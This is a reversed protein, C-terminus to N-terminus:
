YEATLGDISIDTDFYKTLATIAYATDKIGATEYSSHMALQPLGIDVANVSVQTNSLNGLTSGGQADSRNAFTQTPVGAENCISTFIARSFADTTYKQNAAEKIVIGKNMYTCNVADTMEVHNPHEAHANDCSVLFSKAVAQYYEESTKGLCANLRQLTDYLLTSMAGQKTNSGVEENDFCCYVNVAKENKGNLFGLLSTFACQLDDLKPTSVFEDKWGWIVPKQRNVLFLDKGLIAEKKVGLEKAIMEDFAGKKLQGASFLPCLDVQRNLAVGKNVERNMHIAVNPILCIDRDIYLLKTEVKNKNQVLVRGAVSLPRDFWTNDIMGGYAEVNLRLYEHPGSLEPINKVKFTPSDGHAATIQYHYNSLDKGVRFAVISSHNRITYCADGKKVKWSETEPLYKFGAKDLYQQIAKVSHFMSPSDQIFQLLEETIKKDNM